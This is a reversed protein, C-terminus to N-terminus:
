TTFYYHYKIVNEGPVPHTPASCDCLDDEIVNLTGNVNEFIEILFQLYSQYRISNYTLYYNKYPPNQNEEYRMIM